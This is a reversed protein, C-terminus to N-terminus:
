RGPHSRSRRGRCERRRCVRVPAVAAGRAGTARVRVLGDRRPIPLAGRRLAEGAGRAALYTSTENSAFVDYTEAWRRILGDLEVDEVRGRRSRAILADDDLTDLLRSVYGPTLRTAAALERVGYPPTVDALCRVLRWAKPGRVRAKGRPAPSPDRQSGDTRIFVAPNDLRILANGTLDLYHVGEDELLARTRPSLWPAVVLLAIGPVMARLRRGVRGLLRDVDRPGFAQRTELALTAYSNQGQIQIAVDGDTEQAEVVWKPPLRQRLWDVADSAMENNINSTNVSVSFVLM